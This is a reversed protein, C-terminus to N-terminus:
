EVALSRTDAARWTKTDAGSTDYKELTQKLEPTDAYTVAHFATSRV